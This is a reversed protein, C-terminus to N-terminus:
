NHGFWSHSRQSPQVPRSCTNEFRRSEDPRTFEGTSILVWCTDAQNITPVVVDAVAAAFAPAAPVFAAVVAGLALVPVVVPNRMNKDDTGAKTKRAPASADQNAEATDSVPSAAAASSSSASAASSSSAATSTVCLRDTPRAAGAARAPRAAVGVDAARSQIVRGQFRRPGASISACASAALSTTLMAAM